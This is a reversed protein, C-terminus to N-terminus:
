RAVVVASNTTHTVGHQDTVLADVRGVQGSPLTAEWRGGGVHHAEVADNGDIRVVVKAADWDVEFAVVGGPATVIPACPNVRRSPAPTCSGAHREVAAKTIMDAPMVGGQYPPAAVE